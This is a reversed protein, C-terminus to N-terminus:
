KKGMARIADACRRAEMDERNNDGMYRADCLRACAEREAAARLIADEADKIKQRMAKETIADLYQVEAEAIAQRLAAIANEQRAHFTEVLGMELAYLAQKMAEISM